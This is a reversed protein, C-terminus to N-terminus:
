GSRPMEVSEESIIEMIGLTRTMEMMMGMGM